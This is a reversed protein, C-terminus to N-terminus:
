LDAHESRSARKCRDGIAIADHIFNRVIEEGREMGKSVAAAISRAYAGTADRISDQHDREAAEGAEKESRQKMAGKYLSVAEQVRANTARVDEKLSQEAAAYAKNLEGHFPAALSAPFNRIVQKAESFAFKLASEFIEEWRQEM